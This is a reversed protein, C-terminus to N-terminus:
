NEVNKLISPGGVSIHFFVTYKEWFYAMNYIM